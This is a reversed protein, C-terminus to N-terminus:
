RNQLHQEPGSGYCRYALPDQFRPLRQNSGVEEVELDYLRKTSIMRRFFEIRKPSFLGQCVKRTKRECPVRVEHQDWADPFQAVLQRGIVGGIDSKGLSHIEGQHRAVGAQRFRRPMGCM